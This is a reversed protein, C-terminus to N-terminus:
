GDRVRCADRREAEVAELWVDDAGTVDRGDLGREVAQDCDAVCVLLCVATDPAIQRDSFTGGFDIRVKHWDDFFGLSAPQRNRAQPPPIPTDVASSGAPATQLGGCRV